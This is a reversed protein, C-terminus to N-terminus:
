RAPLEPASRPANSGELAGSRSRPVWAELPYPDVWYGFTMPASLTRQYVYHDQLDQLPILPSWWGHCFLVLDFQENVVKNRIDALFAQTRQMYKEMLPTPDQQFVYLASETQGSDYVRLGHRALLHSLHPAALVERQRAVLRDLDAWAASHDQPWKPRQSALWVINALLLLLWLWQWRSPRGASLCAVWLLFPSLLQHYYLEDNGKSLGLVLVIAAANCALIIAPFPLKALLLPRTFRRFDAGGGAAGLMPVGWCAGVWPLFEAASIAAFGLNDKLFRGGVGLLHEISRVVSNRQAVVTDTLYCEYVANIAALSALLATIGVLGFVLGKRKNDFLFVYLVVLPLGLVFYPKTLYGLISLAASLALSGSSFRHRYPVVLSALLLFLGFGDPRATISLGQGLQSFLLLGGALAAWWPCKDTRLGWILMGCSAVVFAVSVTRLTQYSNGFWRAFPYSVWYYGIGYAAFCLPRHEVSYPNKGELQLGSTFLPANERYEMPYDAAVNRWAWAGVYGAYALVVLAVLPVLYKTM